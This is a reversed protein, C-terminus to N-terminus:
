NSSPEKEHTVPLVELAQLIAEGDKARLRVEIIGNRPMIDAFELDLARGRGGARAAVDLEELVCERNLSVTMPRRMTDGLDRREAFRLRVLYTGPSVTTNVWFESAHVGYCYLDPDTTNSITGSAPSTWWAVAVSDTNHGSRVVFETGPVWEKGASDLYPKWGPYGFIMRQPFGPGGGEGFDQDVSESSWQFGDLYVRNGESYPNKKGLSVVRIEHPTNTLGNRYYMVQKRRTSQPTWFDIGLQQKVGDLYVEALGGSPDARGIVRIQNGQFRHVVSAGSSETLHSQGNLEEPDSDTQWDGEYTLGSDDVSEQPDEGEVLISKSGDHRVTLIWDGCDLGRVTFGVKESDDLLPLPRNDARVENPFFSLRLVDVCPPQADFTSYGVRGQGYVVNTVISSSRVMHNERAPGFLDPLWAMIELGCLVPGFGILESWERATIQGGDINDEVMGSDHFHYLSLITM